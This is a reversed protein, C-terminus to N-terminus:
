PVAVLGHPRPQPRMALRRRRRPARVAQAPPRRGAAARAAQGPGRWGRWKLPQQQATGRGPQPRRLPGLARRPRRQNTLRRSHLRHPAAIPAPAAAAAAAAVAAAPRTDAPSQLRRCAAAASRTDTGATCTPCPQLPADAAQPSAGSQARVKFQAKVGRKHAPRHEELAHGGGAAVPEAGPADPIRGVAGQTACVRGRQGRISLGLTRQRCCGQM